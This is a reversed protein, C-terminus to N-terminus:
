EYRKGKQPLERVDDLVLARDIEGLQRRLSECASQVGGPRLLEILRARETELEARTMIEGTLM